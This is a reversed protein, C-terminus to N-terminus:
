CKKLCTITAQYRTLLYATILRDMKQTQQRLMPFMAQAETTHNAELCAELATTLGNM